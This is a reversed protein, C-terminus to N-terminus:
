VLFDNFRRRNGKSDDKLPLFIMETWKQLSVLSGGQGLEKHIQIEEIFIQMPTKFALSQKSIRKRKDSLPQIFAESTRNFDM